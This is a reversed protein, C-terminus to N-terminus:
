GFIDDIEDKQKRRKKPKKSGIEDESGRKAVAVVTREIIVRSPKHKGVDVAPVGGVSRSQLTSEDGVTEEEARRLEVLPLPSM